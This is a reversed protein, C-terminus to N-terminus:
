RPAVSGGGAGRVEGEGSVEKCLAMAATNEGQRERQKQCRRHVSDRTDKSIGPDVRKQTETTIYVQSELDGPSLM